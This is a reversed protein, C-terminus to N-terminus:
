RKERRKWRSIKESSWRNRLGGRKVKILGRRKGGRSVSKQTPREAGAAGYNAFAPEANRMESTEKSKARREESRARREGSRAGQEKSAVTKRM